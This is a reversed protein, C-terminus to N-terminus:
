SNNSDLWKQLFPQQRLQRAHLTTERRHASWRWALRAARGLLDAGRTWYCTYRRLPTLPLSYKEAMYRAMHERSPFATRAFYRVREGLSATACNEAFVKVPQLVMDAEGALVISRAMGLWREEFDGPRLSQLFGEPVRSGMMAKALLLALFVCKTARWERARSEVERWDMEEAYHELVAAIDCLPRLGLSFASNVAGGTHACLHLLLDAPCLVLAGVGAVTAPRARKWLGDLDPRIALTPMLITWHLEVRPNPPKTFPPLHNVLLCWKEIDHKECAYGMARLRDSTRSLDGRGVMVDIDGMPRLAPNGYIMEGLCAGKLAIVPIQDERLAQLVRALNQYVLTNRVGNILYTERLEGLVKEPVRPPAPRFTPGASRQGGGGMEEGAEIASAAGTTLRHYLLSNTGHKYSSAVVGKWETESLSNLEERTTQSM